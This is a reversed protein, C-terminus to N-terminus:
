APGHGAAAARYVDATLRATASWGHESARALAAARLEAARRPDDLVAVIADALSKPDGPEALVSAGGTLEATNTGRTTVVPTGCAMAELAPLGFGEELSPLLAAAAGRYLAALTADSVYDTLVLRVGRRQAVGAVRGSEDGTAGALVLALERDLRGMAEVITDLAKRPDHSRLSGVWLVYPDAAVGSARREGADNVSEVPCFIPSVGHPVVHIRDSPVGLQDRVDSAVGPSVAIVAAVRRLRRRQARLYLATRRGVESPSKTWPIVDHVTVVQRHLPWGLVPDSALGQVLSPRSRL